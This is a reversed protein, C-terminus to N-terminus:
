SPPSQKFANHLSAVLWWGSHVQLNPSESSILLYKLVYTRNNLLGDLNEVSPKADFHLAVQKIVLSSLRTPNRVARNRCSSHNTFGKNQHPFYPPTERWQKGPPFPIYLSAQFSLSHVPRWKKKEEYLCLVSVGGGGGRGVGMWIQEKQLDSWFLPKM